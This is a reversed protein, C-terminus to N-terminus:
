VDGKNRNARILVRGTMTPPIPLGLLDLITPAIDALTGQDHLVTFRDDGAYVYCPVPNATHETAPEGTEPNVMQEVNGHDATVLLVAHRKECARALQGLLRDITEVARIAAQYNGTHGVMDPNAFNVVILQDKTHEIRDIVRRTIEEASMEPVLDYTEVQPSPVLKREEGPYVTERGGNLFYTVHAYKETEAIHYQRGGAQSILAALADEIPEPTFAADVGPIAQEALYPILSVFQRIKPVRGRKLDNLTPDTLAKTLQRARDSRINWFVAADQADFGAYPTDDARNVRTPELYEDTVGSAYSQSLAAKASAAEEGEGYALLSVARATREWHNDRDMAWYRGCLTQIKAMPYDVLFAEFRMIEALGDRPDSDRGDTFVHLLIEGVGARAAAQVLAEAHGRVAHISVASLLGMLHLRGGGRALQAFAATLVPNTFFSQDEIARSIRVSDQLVIRGAGITLHGVESNGVEGPPLGVGTGAAALVAHPGQWLQDIIPTKAEAIANGGWAPGVGWGDLIVLTVTDYAMSNPLSKSM